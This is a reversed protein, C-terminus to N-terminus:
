LIGFSALLVNNISKSWQITESENKQEQPQGLEKGLTHSRRHYPIMGEVKEQEEKCNICLEATPRARLRGVGINSSCDLCEGFHGKDIRHLAENIKKLYFLDRGKLKAVLQLNQDELSRDIEDGFETPSLVDMGMEAMIKQRITLFHGKFEEIQLQEMVFGGPILFEERFYRREARDLREDKFSRHNPTKSRGQFEGM